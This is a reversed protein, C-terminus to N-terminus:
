SRRGVTVALKKIKEYKRFQWAKDLDSVYAPKKHPQNPFKSLLKNERSSCEVSMKILIIHNNKTKVIDGIPLAAAKTTAPQSICRKQGPFHKM